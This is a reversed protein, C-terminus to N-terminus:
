PLAIKVPLVAKAQGDLDGPDDVGDGDLWCHQVLGGLTQRDSTPGPDLAAEIADILNNLAIGPAFDVNKGAQSYIWIEAKLVRKLLSGQREYVTGTNRLFLAPQASVKSWYLARRGTTLFGTTLAVGSGNAQATLSLTVTLLVTDWGVVVAGEPIGPGFVPLGLFLGTFSSPATLTASGNTTTATFNTVVSGVLLNFLATMAAERTALAM